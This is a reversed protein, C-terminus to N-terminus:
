ESFDMKNKIFNLWLNPEYSNEFNDINFALLFQFIVTDKSFLGRAINRYICFTINKIMSAIKLPQEDYSNTLRITHQFVTQYYELSWFYMPDILNLQCIVFYLLQGREAVGRYQGLMKEIESKTAQSVTMRLDIESNVQQASNLV